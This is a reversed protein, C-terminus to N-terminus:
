PPPWLDWGAAKRKEVHALALGPENKPEYYMDIKPTKPWLREISEAFYEPKESHQDSRALKVVPSFFRDWPPLDDIPVGDVTTILSLEQTGPAPWVPNGRSFILLLECNDIVIHGTGRLEKDWAICTKYEYGWHDEINRITHSLQARTTWCFLIADTFLPPPRSMIDAWFETPYHNDAARDLGTVRSWVEFRTAPDMYGVEYLKSGLLATAKAIRANLVALREERRQQKAVIKPDPRSRKLRRRYNRMKEAPTYAGKKRTPPRGRKKPPSTTTPQVM